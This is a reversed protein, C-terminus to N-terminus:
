ITSCFVVKWRSRKVENSHFVTRVVVVVVADSAAAVVVAAVPVVAAVVSILVAFCMDSYVEAIDTSGHLESPM